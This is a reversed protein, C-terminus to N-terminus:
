TGFLKEFREVYNKIYMAASLATTIGIKDWHKNIPCKINGEPNRTSCDILTFRRPCGSVELIFRPALLPNDSLWLVCWLQCCLVFMSGHLRNGQPVNLFAVPDQADHYGRVSIPFVLCYPHGFLRLQPCGFQSSALYLRKIGRHCYFQDKGGSKYIWQCCCIEGLRLRVSHQFWCECWVKMCYVTVPLQGPNKNM